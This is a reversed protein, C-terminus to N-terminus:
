GPAHGSCSSTGPAVSHLAESKSRRSPSTAAMAATSYVYSAASYTHGCARSRLTLSLTLSLSLTLGLTLSLTLTLTLRVSALALRQAARVGRQGGRM